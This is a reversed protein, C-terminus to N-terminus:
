SHHPNTHIKYSADPIIISVKHKYSASHMYIDDNIPIVDKLNRKIRLCRRKINIVEICGSLYVDQENKTEMKYFMDFVETRIDANM